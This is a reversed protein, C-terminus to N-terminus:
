PITNWIRPGATRFARDSFTRRKNVPVTYSMVKNEASILTLKPLQLTLLETIYVPANGRSCIFMSRESNEIACHDLTKASFIASPM